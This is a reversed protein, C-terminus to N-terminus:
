GSGLVAEGAEHDAVASLRIEGGDGTYKIANALLNRIILKVHEKDAYVKLDDPVDLYIM